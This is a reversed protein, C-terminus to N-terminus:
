AQRTGRRQKPTFVYAACMIVAVLAAVAVVIWWAVLFLMVGYVVCWLNLAIKKILDM